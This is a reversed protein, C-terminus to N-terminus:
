GPNGKKVPEGTTPDVEIITVGAATRLRSVLNEDDCAFWSTCRQRVDDYYTTRWLRSPAPNKPEM